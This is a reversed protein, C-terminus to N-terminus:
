TTVAPPIDPNAPLTMRTFFNGRVHIFKMRWTFSSIPPSLFTSIEVHRTEVQRLLCVSFFIMTTCIYNFRNLSGGDTYIYIYIPLTFLNAQVTFLSYTPHELFSPEM